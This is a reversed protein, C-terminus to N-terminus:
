IRSTKDYVWALFIKLPFSDKSKRGADPFYHLEFSQL